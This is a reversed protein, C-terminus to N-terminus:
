WTVSLPITTTSPFREGTSTEVTKTQTVGRFSSSGRRRKPRIGPAPLMTARSSISNADPGSTSWTEALKWRFARFSV